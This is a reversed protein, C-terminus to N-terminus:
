GQEKKGRVWSGEKKEKEQMEGGAGGEWGERGAGIIGAGAKRVGESEM